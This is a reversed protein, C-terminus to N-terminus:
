QVFLTEFQQYIALVKQARRPDTSWHQSVEIVFQEGTPAAIAAAYHPYALEGDKGRVVALRQLTAMRDAFCAALDPYLVWASFAPEFQQHEKRWERTPLSLTGYEPHIHQKMGFLNNGERALSSSGYGSELAAECAAYGPFIHKAQNAATFTRVMFNRRANVIQTM